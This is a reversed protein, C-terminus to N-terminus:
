DIANKKATNLAEVLLEAWYKFAKAADASNSVSNRSMGWNIDNRRGIKRDSARALIQGTVSDYLEVYLTAQGASATYTYSRSASKVDPAAVDLNIIAPRVLLVDAGAESVVPYDNEELVDIFVHAFLDKGRSIM